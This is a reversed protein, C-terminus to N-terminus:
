YREVRQRGFVCLDSRFDIREACFRLDKGAFPDYWLHVPWRSPHTLVHALDALVHTVQCQHVLLLLGVPWGCGFEGLVEFEICEDTRAATRVPEARRLGDGTRCLERYCSEFGIFSSLVM